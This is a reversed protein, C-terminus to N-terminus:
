VCYVLAPYVVERAQMDLMKEIRAIQLFDGKKKAVQLDEANERLRELQAEVAEFVREDLKWLYAFINNEDVLVEIKEPSHEMVYHVHYRIAESSFYHECWKNGMDEEEIAGFQLLSQKMSDNDYSRVFIRDTDFECIPVAKGNEDFIRKRSQLLM